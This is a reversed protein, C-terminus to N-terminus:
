HSYWYCHSYKSTIRPHGREKLKVLACGCGAETRDILLPEGGGNRLPVSGTLEQGLVGQGLDLSTYPVVL